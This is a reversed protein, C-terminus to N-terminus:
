GTKDGPADGEAEAVGTDTEEEGLELRRQTAVCSRGTIAGTQQQSTKRMTKM